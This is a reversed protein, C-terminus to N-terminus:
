LCDSKLTRPRSCGERWDKKESLWKKGNNEKGM